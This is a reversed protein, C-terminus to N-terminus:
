APDPGGLWYSGTGCPWTNWEGIAGYVTTYPSLRADDRWGTKLLISVSESFLTRLWHNLVKRAFAIQISLTSTHTQFRVGNSLTPFRAQFCM